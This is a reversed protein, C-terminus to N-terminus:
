SKVLKISRFWGGALVPQDSVIKLDPAQALADEFVVDLRTALRRSLPNLMRRLPAMQGPHLFKDLVLVSGGPKLVRAAERLTAVPDGTVAVILHAVVHDFQGDAFPMARCDGVVASLWLGDQRPFSRQLMASTLDIGVYRHSLPLYPLDLGTGVGALLIDLEGEKPLRALSDRRMRRSPRDILADYFPAFFTYTQKLSM